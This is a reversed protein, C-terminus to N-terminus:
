DFIACVLALLAPHIKILFGDVTRTHLRQTGMAELQSNLTEIRQRYTRIFAADAPTNAAMNKRHAAILRVGSEQVIRACRDASLYGKDAAVCAGSPLDALLEEVPTVDHFFAPLIQFTVPIGQPTCVLHLRYGYFREQKAACYGCYALEQVKRCRRARCRCCVPLPMSDIIFAEGRTALACLSELILLLWGSLRHVQRNFRSISLSRQLYGSARLLCLSREHHNHIYKAALVTVTLVEADSVVARLDSEHGMTKLMDDIVVYVTVILHENM